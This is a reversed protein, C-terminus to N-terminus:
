IYEIHDKKFLFTNGSAKKGNFSKGKVCDLNPMEEVLEFIKKSQGKVIFRKKNEM